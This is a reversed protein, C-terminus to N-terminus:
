TANPALSAALSRAVRLWNDPAMAVLEAPLFAPTVFPLAGALEEASWVQQATQLVATTELRKDLLVLWGALDPSSGVNVLLRAPEENDGASFALQGASGAFTRAPTVLGPSLRQEAWARLGAHLTELHPMLRAPQIHVLPLMGQPLAVMRRLRGDEITWFRM